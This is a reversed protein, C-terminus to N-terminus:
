MGRKRAIGIIFCSLSLLVIAGTLYLIFSSVLNTLVVIILIASLGLNLIGFLPKILTLLSVVMLFINLTLIAIEIDM